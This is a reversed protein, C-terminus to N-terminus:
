DGFNAKRRPNEGIHAQIKHFDFDPSVIQLLLTLLTSFVNKSSDVELDAILQPVDQHKNASLFTLNAELFARPTIIQHREFSVRSFPTEKSTIGQLTFIWPLHSM